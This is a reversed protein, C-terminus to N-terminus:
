PRSRDPFHDALAKSLLRDRVHIAPDFAGPDTRDYNWGHSIGRFHYGFFEPSSGSLNLWGRVQHTWLQARWSALFARGPAVAWKKGRDKAATGKKRVVYDAHRPVGQGERMNLVWLRNFRRLGFLSREVSKFISQRTRSIVLEDIDVSLISRAAMGYKRFLHTFMPPQAFRAWGEGFRHGAFGVDRMGYRFPWDIILFKQLGEVGALAASLEAMSYQTSGNDYIVVATAGHERVYFRAWDVMWELLNDKNIAFIIRDRALAASRNPQIPVIWEQDGLRLFLETDSEPLTVRVILMQIAHFVKPKAAQGSNVGTIVMQAVLPELNLAMPGILYVHRGTHDRFVDYFVSTDDFKKIFASARTREAEYPERRLLRGADLAVLSHNAIAPNTSLLDIAM